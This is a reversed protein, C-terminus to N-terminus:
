SWRDSSSPVFPIQVINWRDDSLKSWDPPSNAFIFVHPCLFYEICSEYKGSSILGNKIQEIAGYNLFEINHRPIDVLIVNPSEEPHKEMWTKILYFTDNKKGDAIIADQTIVLYKSLLTKGTNGQPEWYWNITRDDPETKVKDLIEQQWPLWQIGSYQRQLVRDKKSPPFNSIYDGDKSCYKINDAKTGKAADWHVRNNINRLTKLNIANKYEVYGQLHPTGSEGTEKGIIYLGRLNTFEHTLTNLEAESWNNLVFCYRRYRAPTKTNGGANTNPTNLHTSM